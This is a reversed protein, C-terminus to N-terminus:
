NLPKAQVENHLSLMDKLANIVNGLFSVVSFDAHAAWHSHPTDSIVIGVDKDFCSSDTFRTRPARNPANKSTGVEYFAIAIFTKLSAQNYNGGDLNVISDLLGQMDDRELAGITNKLKIARNLGSTGHTCFISPVYKQKEIVEKTHTIYHEVQVLIATKLNDFSVQKINEIMPIMVSKRQDDQASQAYVDIDKM